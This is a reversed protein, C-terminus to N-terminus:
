EFVISAYGVVATVDGAAEGSDGYRLLVGKKAGRQKAFEMAAAIPGPGCISAGAHILKWFGDADLACIADAARQDVASAVRRPAYHTFDSSAIFFVDRKLRKAVTAVAKGLAAASEPEQMQMCIGVFGFNGFAHQLFPLQVEVSHESRHAVEDILANAERAIASALEGDSRVDGLPTRWVEKSVSILGGEGTHNPGAIVFVPAKVNDAIARYTFAAVPGSYMYGAHPAVAAFMKGKHTAARAMYGGLEAELAKADATYFSGAVAPYRM